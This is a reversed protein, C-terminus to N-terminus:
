NINSLIKVKRTPPEFIVADAYNGWKKGKAYSIQVRWEKKLKHIHGVGGTGVDCHKIEYGKESLESWRKFISRHKSIIKLVDKYNSETYKM